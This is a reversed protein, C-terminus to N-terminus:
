EKGILDATCAGVVAALMVGAIMKYSEEINHGFNPYFLYLVLISMVISCLYLVALRIPMYILIKKDEIKRFGTAYIFLLGVLFTLPFMITARTMTLNESIEVGYIFTYHIALGIFAGILGKAVDKLTVKALPHSGVERRIESEIKELKELESEEHKLTGSISKISKEDNEIKKEEFEIKQEEASLKDEKKSVDKEMKLLKNEIALVEDLKKSVNKKKNEPKIKIPKKKM